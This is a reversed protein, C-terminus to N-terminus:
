VVGRHPFTLQRSCVVPVVLLEFRIQRLCLVRGVQTGGSVVTEGKGVGQFVVRGGHTPTDEETFLVPGASVDFVGAGLCVVVDSGPTSLATTALYGRVASQVAHLSHTSPSFSMTCAAASASAVVAALALLLLPRM